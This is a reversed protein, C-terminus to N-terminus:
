PEVFLITLSRSLASADDASARRDRLNGEPWRASSAIREARRKAAPYRAYHEEALKEKWFKPFLVSRFDIKFNFRLPAM